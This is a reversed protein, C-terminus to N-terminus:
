KVASKRSSKNHPTSDFYCQSTLTATFICLHAYIQQLIEHMDSANRDFKVSSKHQSETILVNDGVNEVFLCFVVGIFCKLWTQM